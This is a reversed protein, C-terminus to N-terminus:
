LFQLFVSTVAVISSGLIALGKLLFAIAKLRQEWLAARARALETKAWTLKIEQDKKNM